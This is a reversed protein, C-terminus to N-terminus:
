QIFATAQIPIPLILLPAAVPIIALIGYIILPEKPTKTFSVPFPSVGYYNDPMFAAVPVPNVYINQRVSDECGANTKVLLSVSYSGTDPLSILPNKLGSTQGNGFNWKWLAITDPLNVTSVDTFKYPSAACIDDSTFAANPLAHVVIPLTKTVECGNMSNVTLSVPYTGASDYYCVPNKLTSTQGNGFNWFWKLINTWPQTVSTDNFYVPM